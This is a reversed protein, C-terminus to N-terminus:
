PIRGTTTITRQKLLVAAMTLTIRKTNPKDFDM